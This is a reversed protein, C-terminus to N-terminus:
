QNTTFFDLLRNKPEGYCTANKVYTSVTELLKFHYSPDSNGNIPKYDISTDKTPIGDKDLLAFSHGVNIRFYNSVIDRDHFEDYRSSIFLGFKIEYSKKLSELYKMIKKYKKEANELNKHTIISLHFNQGSLATPLIWDLLAFLNDYIPTENKYDPQLFYNDTIILSNRPPLEIGCNKWGHFQNLEEKRHVKIEKPRSSINEIKKLYDTLDALFIGLNEKEEIEHTELFLLCTPNIALKTISKPDELIARFHHKLERIEGGGSNSHKWFKKIRPNSSLKIEERNDVFVDANDLLLEFLSDWNKRNEDFPDYIVNDFFHILFKQQCYTEIRKM